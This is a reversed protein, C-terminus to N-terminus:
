GILGLDRLMDQTGELDDMDEMPVEPYDIEDLDPVEEPTDLDLDQRVPHEFTESTFYEQGEESILYDIFEDANEENEATNLRGLGSVMMMSGPGGDRPYYNAVPFDEGHEEKLRHLYYHNVMAADVEGAGVDQVQPTNSSYHDIPDNDDIAKLWEETEEEGWLSRMATVMSQFSGNPPAWSVRGEWEEDAFGWLSDPLEDEDVADTNYSVVRARASAGVWDNDTSRLEEPVKEVIDDPLEALRPQVAGIGAPDKTYFVDAPSDEGEELILSAMEASSGYKVEVEIGTEDEFDEILNEILERSRGSYLVLSDSDESSFGDFYLFVSAILLFAVIVTVLTWIPQIGKTSIDIRKREIGKM